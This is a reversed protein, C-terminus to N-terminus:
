TYKRNLIESYIVAKKLSFGTVLIGKRAVPKEEKVPQNKNLASHDKQLEGNLEEESIISSLVPPELQKHGEDDQNMSQEEHPLEPVFVKEIEDFFSGFPSNDRPEERAEEMLTEEDDWAAKRTKQQEAKALEEKKRSQSIAQIIVVIVIIILFIYDGIGAFQYYISDLYM